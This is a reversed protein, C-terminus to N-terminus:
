HRAARGSIPLSILVTTDGPGPKELEIRGQNEEVLTTVLLSGIGLGAHNRKGTIAVKFLKNQLKRPVGRGTDSIRIEAWLKQKSGTITITGGKPMATYANQLLSEFMFILWRRYGLVQVGGLSRVNVDIQYQTAKKLYMSYKERDALNRLLPGIPVLERIMETEHPVRPPANVIEAALRDMDGITETVSTAEPFGPHMGLRKLLIKSHNRIASAKQVLNHQWMDEVMSVWVLLRRRDEKQQSDNYKTQLNTNHIVQAAVDAFLGISELEEKSPESYSRYNGFFLGLTKGEM